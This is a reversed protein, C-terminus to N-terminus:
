IQNLYYIFIHHRFLYVSLRLIPYCGGLLHFPILGTFSLIYTRYVIMHPAFGWGCKFPYIFIFVSNYQFRNPNMVININHNKKPFYILYPLYFHFIIKTFITIFKMSSIRRCHYSTWITTIINSLIIYLSYIYLPLIM